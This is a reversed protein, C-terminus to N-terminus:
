VRQYTAINDASIGQELLAQVMEEAEDSGQYYFSYLGKEDDLVTVFYNPLERMSEELMERKIDSTRRGPARRDLIPANSM